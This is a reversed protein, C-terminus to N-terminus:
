KKSNNGTDNSPFSLMQLQQTSKVLSVDSATVGSTQTVPVLLPSTQPRIGFRVLFHDTFDKALCNDAPVSSRHLGLLTSPGSATSLSRM